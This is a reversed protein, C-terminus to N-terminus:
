GSLDSVRFPIVEDKHAYVLIFGNCTIWDYEYKKRQEKEIKNDIVSRMKTLMFVIDIYSFSVMAHSGIMNTSREKTQKEIKNDIVSRM